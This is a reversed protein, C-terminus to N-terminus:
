SERFSFMLFLQWIKEGKKGEADQIIPLKVHLFKLRAGLLGIAVVPKDLCAELCQPQEEIDLVSLLNGSRIDFLRLFNDKSCCILSEDNVVFKCDVIDHQCTLLSHRTEGTKADLIHVGYGSNFSDWTAIFQEEPSFMFCPQLRVEFRKEGRVWVHKLSNNNRLSVTFHEALISSELIEKTTCVLLQNQSNCSISRVDEDCCVRTKISSVCQGNTVSVIDVVLMRFLEFSYSIMLKNLYSIAHDFRSSHLSTDLNSEDVDQEVSGHEPLLDLSNEAVSSHFFSFQM